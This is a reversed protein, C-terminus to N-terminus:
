AYLASVARIARRNRRYETVCKKHYIEGRSNSMNEPSDYQKCFKCRRWNANGCYRLAEERLHLLKHYVQNPCLVLTASGDKNYHHHIVEKPTLYRGIAKEVELRYGYVTGSTSCYPHDPIYVRKHHLAHFQKENM